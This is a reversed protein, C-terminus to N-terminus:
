KNVNFYITLIVITVVIALFLRLGFHKKKPQKKEPAPQPAPKPPEKVYIIEKVIKTEKNAPAPQPAPKPAPQPVVPAPPEPKKYNENFSNCYLCRKDTEEIHAGCNPCRM